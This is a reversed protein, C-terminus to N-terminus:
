QLPRQSTQSLEVGLFDQFHHIFPEVGFIAAGEVTSENIASPMVLLLESDFAGTGIVMIECGDSMAMCLVVNIDFEEMAATNELAREIADPDVGTIHNRHLEYNALYLALYSAYSFGYLELM